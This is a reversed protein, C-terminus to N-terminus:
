LLLKNDFYNKELSHALLLPFGEWLRPNESKVVEALTENADVNEKSEFLPYGLLKLNKLLQEKKM